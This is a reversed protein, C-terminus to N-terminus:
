RKIVVADVQQPVLAEGDCNCCINGGAFSIAKGSRIETALYSTTKKNNKSEAYYTLLGIFNYCSLDYITYDRDCNDQTNPIKKQVKKILKGWIDEKIVLLKDNTVNSFVGEVETPKFEEGDVGLTNSINVLMSDEIVLSTAVTDKDPNSIVKERGTSKNNDSVIYYTTIGTISIGILGIIIKTIQNM